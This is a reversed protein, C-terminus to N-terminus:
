KIKSTDKYVTKKLVITNIKDGINYKDYTNSNTSYWLADTGDFVQLNYSARFEMKNLIEISEEQASETETNDKSGCSVLLCLILIMLINKM